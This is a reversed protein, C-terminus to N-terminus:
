CAISLSDPQVGDVGLPIVWRVNLVSPDTMRNVFVVSDFRAFGSDIMLFKFGFSILELQEDNILVLDIPMSRGVILSDVEIRVTDPIGPDTSYVPLSTFLLIFLFVSKPLLDFHSKFNKRITGSLSFLHLMM